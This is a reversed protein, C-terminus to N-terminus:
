LNPESGGIIPIAVPRSAQGVTLILGDRHGGLGAAGVGTLKKATAPRQGLPMGIVFETGALHLHGFGDFGREGILAMQDDFGAGTGALREGVQHGGQEGTLSNDDGGPGLSKLFLKKEFVYGEQLLM